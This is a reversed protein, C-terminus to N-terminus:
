EFFFCHNKKETSEYDSQMKEILKSRQIFNAISDIVKERPIPCPTEVLNSLFKEDLEQEDDDLFNKSGKVIKSKMKLLKNEIEYNEDYVFVDKLPPYLREYFPLNKEEEPNGMRITAKTKRKRNGRITSRRM